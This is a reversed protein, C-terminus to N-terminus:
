LVPSTVTKGHMSSPRRRMPRARLRKWCIAQPSGSRSTMMGGVALGDPGSTCIEIENVPLGGDYEQFLLEGDHEEYFTRAKALAQAPTGARFTHEAWDADTRFYATYSPMTPEKGEQSTKPHLQQQV